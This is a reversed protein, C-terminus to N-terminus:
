GHWLGGTVRPHGAYDPHTAVDALGAREFLSRVPGGQEAGHEILLRGGPRLVRAAQAIWDQSFAAYAAQPVEVYGGVVFREDRNYHRHLFNAEIGYPPDTVILDVCGDPLHEVAGQVCDGNVFLHEGFRVM